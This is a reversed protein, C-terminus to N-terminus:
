TFQNSSGCSRTSVNAFCNHAFHCDHRGGSMVCEDSVPLYFISSYRDVPLASTDVCFFFDKRLAIISSVFGM